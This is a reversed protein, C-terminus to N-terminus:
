GVILGTVTGVLLGILFLIKGKSIFEETAEQFSIQRSALKALTQEIEDKLDFLMAITKRM